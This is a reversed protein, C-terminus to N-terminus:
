GSATPSCPACCQRLQDVTLEGEGEATATIVYFQEEVWAPLGVLRYDDTQYAWRILGALSCSSRLGRASTYVYRETSRESAIRKIAAVDFKVDAAQIQAGAALIFAFAVSPVEHADELSSSASM